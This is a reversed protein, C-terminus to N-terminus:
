STGAINVARMLMREHYVQTALDLPAIAGKSKLDSAREFPALWETPKEVELSKQVALHVPCIDEVGRAAVEEILRVRWERPAANVADKISTSKSLEPDAFRLMKDLFASAAIPGPVIKVLDALEKGALLTAFPLQLETMRTDLDRSHEGFVWWLINSEERHSRTEQALKEGMKNVSAALKSIADALQEFPPRIPEKLSTLNTGTAATILTDLSDELDVDPETVAFNGDSERMRVAKEALYARAYELIESNLVNQRLGQCYDCLVALAVADTVTTRTKEVIHAVTAGALVQLELGNERMPFTPDASQLAASYREVFDSVQPPRAYFLRVLEIANQVKIKKAFNELGQWRKELDEAKPQLGAARYWEAFYKHM